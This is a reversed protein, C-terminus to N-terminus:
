DTYTNRLLALMNNEKHVWSFVLLLIRTEEKPQSSVQHLVIMTLGSESLLRKRFLTYAHFRISCHFLDFRVFIKLNLLRFVSNGSGSLFVYCSAAFSLRPVSVVFGRVGGRHPRPKVDSMM